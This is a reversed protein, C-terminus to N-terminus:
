RRDGAFPDISLVYRGQLGDALRTAQANGRVVGASAGLVVLAVVYVMAFRPQRLVGALWALLPAWPGAPNQRGPMEERAVRRWVGDAFRPPVECPVEWSRLVAALRTDESSPQMPNM